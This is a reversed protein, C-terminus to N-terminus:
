KAKHIVISGGNIEQPDAADIDESTGIRNDYVIANTTKNWIKIRFRDPAGDYATLLFGYGGSGNIIGDGKYQAKTGNASVVLWQYSTSHFNFNAFHLQFETEGEPVSAGKKYKSVFGFNAKGSLTPGATYAGSPSVIWGGGTVFGASPDYIVVFEYKSTAFGTDDDRVTVDVAYVGPAGYTHTGTCSGVGAGTGNATSSSGDDWSYMCTHTDQNGADTYNTTVSATNGLQIPGSPPGTMGTVVPAVNSVTVNLPESDVGGDDDTVTVTVTSTDSATGTPNDDAFVCDFSGNKTAPSFTSNAVTGSTGCSSSPTWTDEGPDTFSFSYPKSQGESTSTPGSLTVTPKVNAVTVAQSGTDSGGDGDSVTASVSSSAPGDPFKCAFSGGGTAPNFTLSGSVESGGSGCSHATLAFTEEGPDTTAITYTRTQGEDVAADGSVSVTPKVNAM